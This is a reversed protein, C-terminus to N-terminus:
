PQALISTYIEKVDALTAFAGDKHCAARLLALAELRDLNKVARELAFRPVVFGSPTNTYEEVTM